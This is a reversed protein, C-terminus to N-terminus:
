RIVLYILAGARYVSLAAPGKGPEPLKAILEEVTRVPTNNVATIVDGQRLGARSARSGSQVSVVAVGEVEGYGPLDPELESLTAGDLMQVEGTQQRAEARQAKGIRATISIERGDRLVKLEVDSEPPTMGIVNRLDGSDEVEAGGVALVVDGIELGAKEAASGPIVQSVIAGRDADIGLARALDPTLDQIMVGLRGRRVEGYSLLQEM